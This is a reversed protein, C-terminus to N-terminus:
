EAVVLRLGELTKPDPLVGTESPGGPRFLMWEAEEGIVDIEFVSRQSGYWTLQVTGNPGVILEPPTEQTSELWDLLRKVHALIESSPAAAGETDWDPKLERIQELRSRCDQWAATRRPETMTAPPNGVGDAEWTPNLSKDIM